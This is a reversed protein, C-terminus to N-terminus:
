HPRRAGGRMGLGGGGSVGGAPVALLSVMALWGAVVARREVLDLRTDSGGAAEVKLRWLVTAGSLLEILSDAGFATLPVSRAAIGAGIALVAELAMWVVTSTELRVGRRIAVARLSVDPVGPHRLAM